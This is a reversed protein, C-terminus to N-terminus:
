DRFAPSRGGFPLQGVEAGEPSIAAAEQFEVAVVDFYQRDRASPKLRIRAPRRIRGRAAYADDTTDSPPTGTLKLWKREAIRRATRNPSDLALWESM